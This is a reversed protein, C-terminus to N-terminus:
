RRGRGDSRHQPAQAVIWAREIPEDEDGVGTDTQAQACPAALIQGVQLLLTGVAEAVDLDGELM